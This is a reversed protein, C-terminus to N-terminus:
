QTCIGDCYGVATVPRADEAYLSPTTSKRFVRVEVTGHRSVTGTWTLTQSAGVALANMAIPASPSLGTLPTAVASGTPTFTLEATWAGASLATAGINTVIASVTLSANVPVSYHSGGTMRVYVGQGPVTFPVENLHVYTEGITLWRCSGDRYTPDATTCGLDGPKVQLYYEPVGNPSEHHMYHELTGAATSWPTGSGGALTPHALGLQSLAFSDCKDTPSAYDAPYLYRLQLAGVCRKPNPKGFGNKWALHAKQLPGVASSVQHGGFRRAYIGVNGSPLLIASFVADAAIPQGEPRGLVIPDNGKNERGAWSAFDVNVSVNNTTAAVFALEGAVYSREQITGDLLRAGANMMGTHSAVTQGGGIQGILLTRTPPAAWRWIAKVFGAVGAFTSGPPAAIVFVAYRSGGWIVIEWATLGVPGGAASSFGWPLQRLAAYMTGTNQGVLRAFATSGIGLVVCASKRAHVDEGSRLMKNAVTAGLGHIDIGVTAVTLNTGLNKTGAVPCGLGPYAGVATSGALGSGALNAGGLNAGGLNAGGLNAGGLNTGGLNNGGLNNGGLNTGGLNAGGLNAGGLNAGGLNAGGLNTGGLNAGGLNAGGLNAGGLNPGVIPSSQEGVEEPDEDDFDIDAALCGSAGWLVCLAVAALDARPRRAVERDLVRLM